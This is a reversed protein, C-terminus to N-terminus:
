VFIAEILAFVRKRYVEFQLFVSNAPTPDELARGEGDLPVPATVPEGDGPNLVQRLEDAGSGSGSGSAGLERLGADLLSLDWPEIEDGGSGSGYGGSGADDGEGRYHITVTLVRFNIDNREQTESLHIASIKGEGAAILKGDITYNDSNVGDQYAFIWDPVRDAVNKRTISTWRSDDKEAQPDFPDGASNGIADGHIDEFVPTQFTETSWETKAPDDLPNERIDFENSYRATIHWIKRGEDQVPRVEVCRMTSDNPHEAGINPCEVYDMIVNSRDFNSTCECHFVRIDEKLTKRPTYRRAGGRGRQPDEKWSSVIVTM